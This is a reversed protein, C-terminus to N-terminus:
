ENSKLWSHFKEIQIHYEDTHSWFNYKGNTTFRLLLCWFKVFTSFIRLNCLDMATTFSSYIKTQPKQLDFTKFGQFLIAPIVISISMFHFKNYLVWENLQMWLKIAPTYTNQFKFLLLFNKKTRQNVTCRMFQAIQHVNYTSYMYILLIHEHLGWEKEFLFVSIAIM